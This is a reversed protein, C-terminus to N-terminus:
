LRRALGAFELITLTEARRGPDVGATTTAKRVVELPLGLGAALANALTKRRQAFAARVVAHFRREDALPVCPGPRVRLHLVASEVEPPPRFAGPPVRLAVRVDCYLQTLVSLSGYTKSGPPAAVREAVERQLMLAMEDIATRAAILAALIPKGVSYPLNGVVLARGGPPRALAGYDWARADAEVVEVSPIRARLRAVLGRDIELAVVRGARGALEGTLAGEGPGIEVVLDGRAPAVLDVIARAVGADRLFHQGLARRRTAHM